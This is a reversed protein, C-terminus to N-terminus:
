VALRPPPTEVALPAAVPIPNPLFVARLFIAPFRMMKAVQAHRVSAYNCAMIMLCGHDGGHRQGQQTLPASDPAHGHLNATAGHRTPEAQHTPATHHTPAAWANAESVGNGMDCRLAVLQSWSLGLFAVLAVSRKM